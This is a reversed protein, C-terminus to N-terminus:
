LKLRHLFPKFFQVNEGFHPKEVRHFPPPPPLTAPCLHPTVKKRKKKGRLPFFFVAVIQCRTMNQERFLQGCDKVKTKQTKKKKGNTRERKVKEQCRENTFPTADYSSM